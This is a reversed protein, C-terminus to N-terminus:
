KKCKCDQKNLNAGCGVCLGKCDEKCLLTIPIEASICDEVLKTLNITDNIVPYSDEADEGATEDFFAVFEQKVMDLCRTCEGEIGFSVEGELYATHNGTLTITGNVKVPLVLNASPIDVEFNEPVYEFFFDETDKGSRKIKRLDLIM